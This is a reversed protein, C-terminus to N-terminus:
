GEYDKMQNDEYIKVVKEEISKLKTDCYKVLELGEQYLNISDDLSADNNELIKIIEDLRKMAQEYTLKQEM